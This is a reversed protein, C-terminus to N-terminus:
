RDVEGYLIESSELPMYQFPILESTTEDSPRFLQLFVNAPQDIDLSKYKPTRFSIGAQRHVSMTKNNLDISEEWVITGKSDKELLQVRVDNRRIKDCFLMIKKGGTVPSTEDSIDEIKLENNKSIPNSVVPQLPEIKEGIWTFVQFCLRVANLNIM